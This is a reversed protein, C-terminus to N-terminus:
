LLAALHLQKLMEHIYPKYTRADDYMWIFLGVLHM